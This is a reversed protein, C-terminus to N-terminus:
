YDNFAEHGPRLTGDAEIFSLNGPPGTPGFEERHADAILSHHLLYALWGIHRKKLQGLSYRLIEVRKGDWAKVRWWGFSGSALPSGVYEIGLTEDSAVKGSDWLDAEGKALKELSSAAQVQYATQKAGPTTDEVIWSFRPKATDIGLPNELYETTLSTTEIAHSALPALLFAVLLTQRFNMIKM